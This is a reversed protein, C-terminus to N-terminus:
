RTLSITMMLSSIWLYPSTLTAYYAIIWEYSNEAIICIKKQGDMGHMYYWTGLAVIEDWTQNFSREEEQKRDNLFVYHRKDGGKKTGYEIIERLTKIDKIEEILAPDAKGKQSQKRSM